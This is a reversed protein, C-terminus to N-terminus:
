RCVTPREIPSIFKGQITLTGQSDINFREDDDEDIPDKNNFFWQVEPRPLGSTECPLTAPQGEPITQNVPGLEIVPPPLEGLGSVELHAKTM